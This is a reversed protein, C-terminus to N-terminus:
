SKMVTQEDQYGHNARKGQSGQNCCHCHTGKKNAYIILHHLAWFLLPEVRVMTPVAAAAGAPAASGELYAHEYQEERMAFCTNPMTKM